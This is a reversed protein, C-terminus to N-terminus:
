RPGVGVLHDLMHLASCKILVNLGGCTIIIIIIIIFKGILIPMHLLQLVCTMKRVHSEKNTFFLIMNVHNIM